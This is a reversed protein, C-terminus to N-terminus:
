KNKSKFLHKFSFCFCFLFNGESARDKGAAPLGRLPCSTLGFLPLAPFLSATWPLLGSSV